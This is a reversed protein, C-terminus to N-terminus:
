PQSGLAQGDTELPAAVIGKLSAESDLLFQGSTVVKQGEELGQLILTKGDSEQGPRVEVPRYHGADEALMVLARKGTRIVAESPVWLSDQGTSRNLRVQATMGPRLRGEANTMEVRVRLSRSDPNTDPLIASVKGNFVTGPFAPLRAEIAQGETISGTQAEPVAVALWVSGLGNIRALTEGSAVTMGTRVNLEQVVGGVPSTVTLNPQVKGSREVQAILSSPMGTLQLRQRAASILERDGSRKLALFETQAAAWDPVLIDALPAGAALVDGPARAYVREVFGSTRTQIVAVDRENFALVGTVDLSSSFRGRVVMATRLGLNQTLGPDISVTANGAGESAYRPVLQMDMFPSKGPKDFKQQPYMPDYWYLAKAEAGQEAATGTSGPIRQYAVGYGAAVGVALAVGALWFRNHKPLNM